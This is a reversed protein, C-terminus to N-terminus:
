LGNFVKTKNVVYKSYKLSSYRRRTLSAKAGGPIGLSIDSKLIQGFSTPKGSAIVINMFFHGFNM